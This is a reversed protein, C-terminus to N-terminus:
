HSCFQEDCRYILLRTVSSSIGVSSVAIELLTWTYLSKTLEAFLVKLLGLKVTSFYVTIFLFTLTFSAVWKTNYSQPGTIELKKLKTQM